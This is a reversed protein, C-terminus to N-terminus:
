YVIDICESIQSGLPCVRPQLGTPLPKVSDTQVGPEWGWCAAGRSQASDNMPM